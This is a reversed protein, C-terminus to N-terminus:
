DGSRYVLILESSGDPRNRVSGLATELGRSVKFSVPSGAAGLDSFGSAVLQARVYELAESPPLPVHCRLHDANKSVLNTGEPLTVLTDFPSSAVVKRDTRFNM